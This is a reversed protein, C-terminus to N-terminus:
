DFLDEKWLRQGALSTYFGWAAVAVFGLVVCLSRAAYWTSFDLTLPVNLLVNVTLVALALVILGFRVVAFAAIGYIALWIPTEIWPHDGGLVKPATFLLVFIAAALWRNKVLVRLLVVLFFFILSTQISAVINVLGLAVSERFGQLFEANALQPRDGARILFFSGVVFVFLWSIAMISGFLLDRGVLPDRLRGSIFRSWSIITQPWNRRVYPELALYLVWIFGSVFLGTSVALIVLGVADFTLVFHSRVLCVSLEIAFVLSALRLAGQRDGRGRSYNRYALFISGAFIILAVSLGIIRSAKDAGTQESQSMRTPKSWPGTLSFYVPKGRRAAAEIHLPRASGPWVGDWAARTDASALSDWVSDSSHFEALNLGAAAFLPLWDLPNAPQPNAEKEPPLAQFFLLHGDPDLQLNIMGSLTTPPDSFTVVNPTFSNGWFGDPSM